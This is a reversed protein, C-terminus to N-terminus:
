AEPKIEKRRGIIQLVLAALLLATLAGSFDLLVDRVQAGRGTFLQLTEDSAAVLFSIGAAGCFNRMRAGANVYFLLILEGGLLAFELFHALKRLWHDDQTDLGLGEILPALQALIGQSLDSSEERDLLSNGWIFCLTSVLLVTLVTNWCRKRNGM